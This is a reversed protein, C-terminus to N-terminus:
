QTDDRFMQGLTLNHHAIPTAELTRYRSTAILYAERSCRYHVESPRGCCSMVLRMGDCRLGFEYEECEEFRHETHEYGRSETELHM